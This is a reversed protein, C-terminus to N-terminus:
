TLSTVCACKGSGCFCVCVYVGQQQEMSYSDYGVHFQSPLMVRQTLSQTPPPSPWVLPHPAPSFSFFDTFAAAFFVDFSELSEVVCVCDCVYVANDRQCILMHAINDFKEFQISTEYWM